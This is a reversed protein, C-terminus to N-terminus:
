EILNDPDDEMEGSAPDENDVYMGLNLAKQLSPIQNLLTFEDVGDVSYVSIMNRREKRTEKEIRYGLTGIDTTFKRQSIRLVGHEDCFLSYNRYLDGTSVTMMKHGKGYPLLKKCNLYEIVSGHVSRGCTMIDQGMRRIASEIRGDPSEEIRYKLGKLARMGRVIWMFIGAREEILKRSLSTDVKDSPISRDFNIILARRSMSEDFPNEPNYFTNVNWAFNSNCVVLPIKEVYEINKGIGRCAIREGSSIAKLTAKDRFDNKDIESCYMMRKGKLSYAARLQDDGRASLQSLKMNSSIEEPGFIGDLVNKIVSKGNKGNGQLILFYEFSVDRRELLCAGLFLQLVRRKSKEPLVGIVEENVYRPIGLFAKWTPCRADPDYDFDYMKIVDFRQDFDYVRDKEFDVVCNKFAMLSLRTRLPFEKVRRLVAKKYEGDVFKSMTLRVDMNLSYVWQIIAESLIDWPAPIYIKGNFTYMLDRSADYRFNESCMWILLQRICYVKLTLDKEHQMLAIMDDKEKSQQSFREVILDYLAKRDAVEFYKM